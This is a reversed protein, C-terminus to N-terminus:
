TPRTPLEIVERCVPREKLQIEGKNRGEMLSQPRHEGAFMALVESTKDCAEIRADLAAIYHNGESVASLDSKDVLEVVREKLNKIM